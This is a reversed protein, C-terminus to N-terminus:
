RGGGGIAFTLPVDAIPVPRGGRDFIEARLMALDHGDAALMRRDATLRMAAAPGATERRDRAVLKGGVYGRAKIRGPAYRATWVLHGNKPMVQRGVSVGNVLLEVTDCNSYSWIEFAEGERGPWTWHPLLHVQPLNPRWWARYYWYNDKPFGCLDLVGFSSSVSAM